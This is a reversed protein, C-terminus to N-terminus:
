KFYKYSNKFFCCYRNAYKYVYFSTYFHPIRFAEYRILDDDVVGKYYKDNLDKYCSTFVEETLIEGNQEKAYIEKEFEAFM